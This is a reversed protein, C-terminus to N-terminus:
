GRSINLDGSFIFCTDCFSPEEILTLFMEASRNRGITATAANSAGEWSVRGHVEHQGDYLDDQVEKHHHHDRPENQLPHAIEGAGPARGTEYQDEGLDDVGDGVGRQGEEAPENRHDPQTAKGQIQAEQSEEQNHHYQELNHCRELDDSHIPFGSLPARNWWTTKAM